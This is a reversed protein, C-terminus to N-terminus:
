ASWTNVNCAKIIHLSSVELATGQAQMNCYRRCSAFRQSQRFYRPALHAGVQADGAVSYGRWDAFSHHQVHMTLLISRVVEDFVRPIRRM